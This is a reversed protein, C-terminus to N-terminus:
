GAGTTPQHGAETGTYAATAGVTAPAASPEELSKELLRATVREYGRGDVLGKCRQGLTKRGNPDKLLETVAKSINKHRLDSAWGLSVAAGAEVLGSTNEVQNDVLLLLLSPLGM